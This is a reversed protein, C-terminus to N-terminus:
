GRMKPKEQMFREVVRLANPGTKVKALERMMIEINNEMIRKQQRLGDREHKTAALEDGLAILKTSLRQREEVAEGLRRLLDQDDVAVVEAMKVILAIALDALDNTTTGTVLSGDAVMAASHGNAAVNNVESAEYGVLGIRYTRKGNIEREIVGDKEMRSLLNTFSNREVDIGLADYLLTSARGGQKDSVEGGFRELTHIIMGRSGTVVNQAWDKDQITDTPGKVVMAGRGRKKREKEEGEENWVYLTAGTDNMGAEVVKSGLGGGTVLKYVYQRSAGTGNMIDTVSRPAKSKRLYEAVRTKLNTAM